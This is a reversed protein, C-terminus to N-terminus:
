DDNKTGKQTYEECYHDHEVFDAIYESDINVCVYGNTRSNKGAKYIGSLFECIRVIAATLVFAWCWWPASLLWMVWMLPIIVFM